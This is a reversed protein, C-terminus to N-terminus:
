GGKNEASKPAVARRRVIDIMIISIGMLSYALLYLLDSVGAPEWTDHYSRYLFTFDALFQTLLALLLLTIAAFMKAGALIRSQLLAILGLLFYISQLLPYAVNLVSYIAGREDTVAINLFSVTMAYVILGTVVLAVAIVWWPQYFKRTLCLFQILYVMAVIYFLNSLLYPIDGISPFALEVGGFRFYM